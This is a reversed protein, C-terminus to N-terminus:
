AAANRWVAHWAARANIELNASAGHILVIPLGDAFESSGLEVVHLRAGAVDILRGDPPYLKQIVFVGIQTGIALCAVAVVIAVLSM